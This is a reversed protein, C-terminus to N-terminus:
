IKSFTQKIYNTPTVGYKKKFVKSFYLPDAYGVSYAIVSVNSFGNKILQVAKEMRLNALYESPSLGENEIFIRYLYSRELGIDAALLSVNFNHLHFHSAIYEKAVSIYDSSRMSNSHSPYHEMYHSLLERLLGSNRQKLYESKIDPLFKNYIEELDSIRQCIPKQYFNTMKLLSVADLGIFNVWTYTWPNQKDPFYHVLENPFVLFSEGKTLYYTEDKTVYYGCGSLVYHLCFTEHIAPGWAYTERPDNIPCHTMKLIPKESFNTM